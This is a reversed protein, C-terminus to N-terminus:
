VVPTWNETSPADDGGAGAAEAEGAPRPEGPAREPEGPPESAAQGAAVPRQAALEELLERLGGTKLNSMVRGPPTEGREWEMWANLLKAADPPPRDMRKLRRSFGASGTRAPRVGPPSRRRAPECGWSGRRVISNGALAGGSLAVAVEYCRPPGTRRDRSSIASYRCSQLWLQRSSIRTTVFTGGSKVPLRLAAAAVGCGCRRLRLAAVAVGCGCLRLRLGTAVTCAVPGCGTCAVAWRSVDCGRFPRRGLRVPSGLLRFRCGPAFGAQRSAWAEWAAWGAPAPAPM